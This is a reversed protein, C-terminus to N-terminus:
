SMAGAAKHYNSRFNNNSGNHRLRLRLTSGAPIGIADAAALLLSLGLWTVKKNM